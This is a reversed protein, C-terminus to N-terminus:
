DGAAATWTVSPAEQRNNAAAVRNEKHGIAQEFMGKLQAVQASLRRNELAEREIRAAQQGSRGDLEQIRRSQWQNERAQKQLANLLMGILTLYNVAEPKGDAGYTVM